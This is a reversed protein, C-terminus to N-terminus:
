DKTKPGRYIDLFENSVLLTLNGLLMFQYLQIDHCFERHKYFVKNYGITFSSHSFTEENNNINYSKDCAQPFIHDIEFQLADTIWNQTNILTLHEKHPLDREIIDAWFSPYQCSDLPTYFVILEDHLTSDNILNPITTPVSNTSSDINDIISNQEIIESNDDSSELLRM